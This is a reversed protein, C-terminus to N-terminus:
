KILKGIIFVEEGIKKNTNPFIIYENKKAIYKKSGDIAFIKNPTLKDFDNYKKTFHFDKTKKIAIKKAKIIKQKHNNYPINKDIINFYQLFQYISKEALPINKQKNHVSGCELCLGIKNQNSMYGDTAGPELDNWGPSIIKFDLLKAISFVKKDCIIFTTSKKNNSAHLDLLADCKDLITILKRARKDETSNGQNNSLFCRNLNKKIQRKNIKIAQPNAFVFYVVGRKIQIKKIVNKLAIVGAKENGHVGAFIAITKGSKKGTKKIISKKILM